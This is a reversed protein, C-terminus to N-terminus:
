PTPSPEHTPNPLINGSSPESTGSQNQTKEERDFEALEEINEDTICDVLNRSKLESAYQAENIVGDQLMTSLATTVTGFVTAKETQSEVEISPYVFRLRTEEIMAEDLIFKDMFEDIPRLRSEQKSEITEYYNQNDETGSAFGSASQGFLKTLPIGLGGALDDRFTKIIEVLGTYTLEKQEWEDNKDKLIMSTSARIFKQAMAIQIYREENGSAVGQNFGDVGMVDTKSEDVIDSVNVCITLYAMLQEKVSQIDSSGRKRRDKFANKGLKVFHCRSHHVRTGGGSNIQFYEPRGFAPSTVDEILTGQVPSFATKDLVLFRTIREENLDLPTSLYDDPTDTHRYSTIAMILSEGLLSAWTLADKRANFANTRTSIDNILERQDSTLPTKIERDKKTMDDAITDVYKQVIWNDSHMNLLTNDSLVGTRVFRRNASKQGLSSALSVINDNLVTM